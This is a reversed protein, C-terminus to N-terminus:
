DHKWGDLLFNAPPGERNNENGDSKHGTVAAIQSASAGAKKSWEIFTQRFINPNLDDIGAYEARLKFARYLGDPTLLGGIEVRPQGIALSRATPRSLSRFLPGSTVGNSALWDTWATLAVVTCHDLSIIHKRGGKKVFTLTGSDIDDLKLQCLSFRLMGTRLGLTIIARDRIDRPQDTACSNLLKISENWTLARNRKRTVKDPVPVTQIDDGFTFGATKVAFRLANLAVNISQPAVGRDVMSDRWLEVRELDVKRKGTGFRLFGRVHQLYLERTRPRFKRANTIASELKDTSPM